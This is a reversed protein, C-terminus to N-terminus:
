RVELGQIRKIISLEGKGFETLDGKRKLELCDKKVEKILNKQEANMILLIIKGGLM